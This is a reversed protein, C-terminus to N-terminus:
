HGCSKSRSFLAPATTTAGTALDWSDLHGGVVVYEQPLDRGTLEGIVNSSSVHPHQAASLKLNVTLKPDTKLLRPSNTPPWAHERRGGPDHASAM